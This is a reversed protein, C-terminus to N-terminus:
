SLIATLQKYKANYARIIEESRGGDKTKNIIARVYSETCEFQTAIEKIALARKADYSNRNSKGM